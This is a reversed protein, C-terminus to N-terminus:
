MREQANTNQNLRAQGVDMDEQKVTIRHAQLLENYGQTFTQYEQDMKAFSAMEILAAQYLLGPVKKLLINTPVDETLKPPKRAYDCKLAVFSAGGTDFNTGTPALHISRPDGEEIAYYKPRAKSRQSTRFEEIFSMDVRELKTNVTPFVMAYVNNFHLFTDPDISTTVRHIEDEGSYGLYVGAAILPERRIADSTIDFEEVVNIRDYGVDVAVKEEALFIATPLFEMSEQSYLELKDVLAQKLDTYTEFM